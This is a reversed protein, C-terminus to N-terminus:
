IMEEIAKAMGVSDGGSCNSLVLVALQRERDLVVGNRFGSTSGPHYPRLRDPDRPLPELRWGYGYHVLEGGTTRTPQWAQEVLQPSLVRGQMYAAIWKAYDVASTYVGGDGLVATSLGQDKLIFQGDSNQAYGLARHPVAPAGPRNVLALTSTMGLPDFYERKLFDPFALGSVREVIQALVAYGSNSYRFRSGPAFDTELQAALLATVEADMFPQAPAPAKELLPEYDKIGSTHRLLHEITIRDGYADFEALVERLTQQLGLRGQEVLRLVAAATFQKSVSALRFNTEPTIREGTELNALGRQGVATDNGVMVLVSAGPQEEQPFRDRLVSQIVNKVSTMTTM